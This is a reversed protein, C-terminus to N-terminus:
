PTILELYKDRISYTDLGIYEELQDVTGYRDIYDKRVGVSSIELPGFTNIIEGGLTSYYPEVVLVKPTLWYELRDLDLPRVTNTYLLRADLGELAERTRDFIPGVSIATGTPEECVRRRIINNLPYSAENQTKSLRIYAPEERFVSYDFLQECELATGPVHINIGPINLLIGVDAPCHHTPGDTSYDFSAGVSVLIVHRNHLGIDLKIQEYCREVIFPAIGYVVPIFGEGALGSALGIALQESIGVNFTRRPFDRFIDKMAWAGVDAIVLVLRNNKAMEKYLTNIFHDRM